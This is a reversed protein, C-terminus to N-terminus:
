ECPHPNTDKWAQHLSVSLFLIVSLEVIQVIILILSSPKALPMFLKPKRPKEHDDDDIPLYKCASDSPAM